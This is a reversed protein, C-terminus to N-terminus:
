VCHSFTFTGQHSTCPYLFYSLSLISSIPHVHMLFLHALIPPLSHQVNPDISEVLKTVHTLGM